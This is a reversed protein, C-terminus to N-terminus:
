MVSWIGKREKRANFEAEILEKEWRGYQACKGHYVIAYGEQVRSLNVVVYMLWSICSELSLSQDLYVMCVARNFKDRSLFEVWVNQDAMSKILSKLFLFSEKAYPQDKFGFKALEPSDVGALRVSINSPPSLAVRLGDADSVKIVNAKHVRREAYYSEPIESATRIPKSKFFLTILYHVLLLLAYFKLPISSTEDQDTM